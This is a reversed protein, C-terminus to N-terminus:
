FSDSEPEIGDADSINPVPPQRAACTLLAYVFGYCVAVGVLGIVLGTIM